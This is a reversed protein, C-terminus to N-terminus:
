KAQFSASFFKYHSPPKLLRMAALLEQELSPLFSSILPSEVESIDTISVTKHRSTFKNAKHYQHCNKCLADSCEVCVFLAPESKELRECSM